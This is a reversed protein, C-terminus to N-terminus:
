NRLLVALAEEAALIRQYFTRVTEYQRPRGFRHLSLARTFVLVGNQV